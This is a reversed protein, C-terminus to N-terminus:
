YRIHLKSADAPKRGETILIVKAKTLSFNSPERDYLFSIHEHVSYFFVLSQPQKQISKDIEDFLWILYM